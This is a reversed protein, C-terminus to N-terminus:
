KSFASVGNNLLQGTIDILDAVSLKKGTAVWQRYFDLSSNVLFHNILDQKEQSLDSYPNYTERNKQLTKLFLKNTLGNYSPNCMLNEHYKDFSTCTDFFLRNVEFHNIPQELQQWQLHFNEAVEEIVTEYLAEISSYHLYFTKRHIRARDTLAKVTIKTADLECVMDHFASKIAEDTKIVRLDHGKNKTVLHNNRGFIDVKCFTHRLGCGRYLPLQM